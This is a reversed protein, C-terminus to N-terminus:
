KGLLGNQFKEFLRLIQRYEMTSIEYCRCPTSQVRLSKVTCLIHTVPVWCIDDRHLWTFANSSVLQKMFKVLVEQNEESTEKTNGLFWTHDYICAVYTEPLFASLDPTMNMSSVCANSYVEDFSVSKM